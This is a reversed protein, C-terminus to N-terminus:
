EGTTPPPRIGSSLPEAKNGNGPGLPVTTPDEALGVQLDESPSLALVLLVTFRLVDLGM